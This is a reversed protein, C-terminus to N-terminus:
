FTDMYAFESSNNDILKKCLNLVNLIREKSYDDELTLLTYLIREYNIIDKFEEQNLNIVMSKAFNISKEENYFVHGYLKAVENRIVKNTCKIGFLINMNNENPEILDLIEPLKVMGLPTENDMRYPSKAYETESESLIQCSRFLKSMIKFLFLYYETDKSLNSIYAREYKSLKFSKFEGLNDDQFEYGHFADTIHNDELNKHEELDHEPFAVGPLLQEM